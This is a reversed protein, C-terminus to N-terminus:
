LAVDSPAGADCEDRTYVWHRFPEPGSLLGRYVGLGAGDYLVVLFVLMM